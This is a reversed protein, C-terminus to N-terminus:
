GAGGGRWDEGDPWEHLVVSLLPNNIKLVGNYNTGLERGCLSRMRNRVGRAGGSSDGEAIPGDRGACIDGASSAPGATGAASLGATAMPGCAGTRRPTTAM